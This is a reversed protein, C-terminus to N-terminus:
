EVGQPPFLEKAAIRIIRATNHAPFFNSDYFGVYVVLGKDEPFPSVAFSRTAVLPPMPQRNPDVIEGARWQGDSTRFWYNGEEAFLKIGRPDQRFPGNPKFRLVNIGTFIIQQGKLVEPHQYEFLRYALVYAAYYGKNERYWKTTDQEVLLKSTKPDYRYFKGSGEVTIAFQPRNDSGMVTHMGRVALTKFQEPAVAVEWRPERGDVRRVLYGSQQGTDVAQLQASTGCYLYGGGDYFMVLRSAIPLETGNLNAEPQEDWRVLGPIREDYVGKWITSGVPVTNVIENSDFTSAQGFLAPLGVGAFIYTQKAILDRYSRFVRVEALPANAVGRSAMYRGFHEGFGSDVWEGTKPHKIMITSRGQRSWLGAALVETTPTVQLKYLGAIGFIKYKGADKGTTIKEPFWIERQWQGDPRDLVIIQGPMPPDPNKPDASLSPTDMWQGLGAYLKGQYAVLDRVETAGLFNGNPDKGGAEFVLKGKAQYVLSTAPANSDAQAQSRPLALEVPDGDTDPVSVVSDQNVSPKLLEFSTVQSPVVAQFLWVLILTGFFAAISVLLKRQKM